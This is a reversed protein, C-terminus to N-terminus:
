YKSQHTYDTAKDNSSYRYKVGTFSNSTMHISIVALYHVLGTETSAVTRIQKGM